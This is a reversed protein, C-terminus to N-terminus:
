EDPQGLLKGLKNRLQKVADTVNGQTRQLPWAKYLKNLNGLRDDAQGARTLAAQEQLAATYIQEMMAAEAKLHGPYNVAAQVVRQAWLESEAKQGTEGLIASLMAMIQINGDPRSFDDEMRSQLMKLETVWSALSEQYVKDLLRRDRGPETVKTLKQFQSHMNRISHFYDMEVRGQAANIERGRTLAELAVEKARSFTSEKDTLLRKQEMGFYTGGIAMLVLMFLALAYGFAQWRNRRCWLWLRSLDSVPRAKIPRDQQFRRLDEALALASEYRRSPSKELCKLCITELDRSINPQFVRPSIPLTERIMALTVRVDDALIPVRGVLLDYLIAGLSYIDSAPGLRGADGQSQEPSMYAPTGVLYNTATLDSTSALSKALGFDAVKLTLDAPYPPVSSVAQEILINSPKLDRHLVGKEHAHHVARAISEVYAAAQQPHLPGAQKLDKLSGGRMLEMVIYPTQSDTNVEYLRVINPHSISAQIRAERSMRHRLHTDYGVETFLKVAVQRNLLDDHCQFVQSMAGHGLRQLVSYRGIKEPLQDLNEAPNQLADKLKAKLRDFVERDLGPITTPSNVAAASSRGVLTDFSEHLLRDVIEQCSRCHVLHELDDDSPSQCDNEIILRHWYSPLFLQCGAGAPDAEVPNNSM